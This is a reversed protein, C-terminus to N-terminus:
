VSTCIWRKQLVFAIHNLCPRLKVDNYGILKLWIIQSTDFGKINSKFHTCDADISYSFSFRSKKPWKLFRSAFTCVSLFVFFAVFCCVIHGIVLALRLFLKIFKSTQNIFFCIYATPWWCEVCMCVLHNNEKFAVKCLNIGSSRQAYHLKRLIFHPRDNYLNCGCFMFFNICFWFFIHCFCISWIYSFGFFFCIIYSSFSARQRDKRCFQIM